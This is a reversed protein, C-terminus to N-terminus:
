SAVVSVNRAIGDAENSVDRETEPNSLASLGVMRGVDMEDLMRETTQVPPLIAPAHPVPSPLNGDAVVRMSSSSLVPSILEGDVSSLVRSRSEELSDMESGGRHKGLRWHYLATISGRIPSITGSGVSMSASRLSSTDDMNVTGPITMSGDQSHLRWNHIAM